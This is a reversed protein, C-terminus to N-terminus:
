RGGMMHFFFESPTLGKLYSNEVFGRAAPGPSRAHSPPRALHIHLAARTRSRALWRAILWIVAASSAGLDFKCFHPLTRDRFGYPIRKGEVNQQGM